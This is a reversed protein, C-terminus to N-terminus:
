IMRKRSGTALFSFNERGVPQKLEVDRSPWIILPKLRIFLIDLWKLVCKSVSGSSIKFRYGLDVVQMDLRFKTLTLVFEQFQSLANKESHKVGSSTYEFITNLVYVSPLGTYYTVKEDKDFWEPTGIITLM